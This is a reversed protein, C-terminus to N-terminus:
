IQNLKLNKEVYESLTEDQIEKMTKVHKVIKRVSDKNTRKIITDLDMVVPKHYKENRKLIKAQREFTEEDLEFVYMMFVHMNDYFSSTNSNCSVIHTPLKPMNYTIYTANGAEENTEKIMNAFLTEGINRNYDKVSFDVHGGILSVRGNNEELVIAKDHAENLVLTNVIIQRHEVNWECLMRDAFYFNDVMFNSKALCDLTFDSQHVGDEVPILQEVEKNFKGQTCMIFNGSYKSLFEKQIRRLM